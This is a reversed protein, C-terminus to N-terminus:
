RSRSGREDALGRDVTIEGAAQPAAGEVIDVHNLEDDDVWLRGTAGDAYPKGDDGLFAIPGSSNEPWARRSRPTSRSTLRRRRQHPPGAAFDAGWGEDDPVVAAEIGAFQRNVDGELADIM